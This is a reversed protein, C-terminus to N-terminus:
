ELGEQAKELAEDLLNWEEDTEIDEIQVNGDEMGIFRSAYIDYEGDENEINDTYFVYKRNNELCDYFMIIECDLSDGEENVVTIHMNEDNM